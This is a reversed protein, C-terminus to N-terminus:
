QNVTLTMFGKKYIKRGAERRDIVVPIHAIARHYLEKIEDINTYDPYLDVLSKFATAALDYHGMEMFGKGSSLFVDFTNSATIEYSVMMALTKDTCSHLIRDINNKFYNDM